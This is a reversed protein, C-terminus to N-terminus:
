KVAVVKVIEVKIFSKEKYLHSKNINIEKM